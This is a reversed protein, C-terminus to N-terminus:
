FLCIHVTYIHALLWYVQLPSAAKKFIQCTAWAEHGPWATERVQYGTWPDNGYLPRIQDGYKALLEKRRKSHPEGNPSWYFEHEQTHTGAKTLDGKPLAARDAVFCM